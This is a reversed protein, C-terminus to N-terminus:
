YKLLLSFKDCYFSHFLLPMENSPFFFFFLCISLLYSFEQTRSQLNTKGLREVVRANKSKKLFPLFRLFLYTNKRDQNTKQKECFCYSDTSSRSHALHWRCNGKHDNKSITPLNIAPFNEFPLFTLYFLILILIFYNVNLSFSKLPASSKYHYDIINM